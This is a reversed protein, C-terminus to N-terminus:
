NTSIMCRNTWSGSLNDQLYVTSGSKYLRFGITKSASHSYNSTNRARAYLDRSSPLQGSYSAWEVSHISVGADEKGAQFVGSGDVLLNGSYRTVFTPPSTSNDQTQVNFAKTITQGDVSESGGNVVLYVNASSSFGISRRQNQPSATVTYVSGSWGGSLTTARSFSQANQWTDSGYNKYQLTYVNNTPGSIQVASIGGMLTAMTYSTQGYTFSLTERVVLGKASLVESAMRQTTIADAELTGVRARLANLDVITAKEAILGETTDMWDPLELDDITLAGKGALVRTADLKAETQGSENISIAIEGAKLFNANGYEDVTALEYSHTGPMYLYSRGTDQATYLVGATGTAPFADKNAYTETSSYKVRGVALSLSRDTQNFQTTLREDMNAVETRIQEATQTIRSNTNTIKSSYDSTLAEATASIQAHLQGDDSFMEWYLEQSGRMGSTGGGSKAYKQASVKSIPNRERSGDSSIQIQQKGTWKLTSKGVPSQYGTGERSVTVIDGAEMAWDGYTNASMPHYRPVSNLREYIAQLNVGSM